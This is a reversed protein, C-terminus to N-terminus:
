VRELVFYYGPNWSQCVLYLRGGHVHWVVNHLHQVAEIGLDEKPRITSLVEHTAADLIYIPAPRGEIPDKLGGVVAYGRGEYEIYDIGCPWAGAPLKHSAFFQGDLGHVQLRANPRDAIVLHHGGHSRSIGHATSFKGNDDSGNAKGGFIQTWRQTKVDAASIYNAGYGDAVYLADGVLVTDTPNFPVDAAQYAEFEPRPLVFELDGDLSVVAVMAASNAPLFLRWKGDFVGIKTSHFNLPTLADPLKILEQQHLDPTIRMLGYGPMGYFLHGFGPRHDIAFGGHLKIEYETAEAPLSHLDERYAFTFPAQGSRKGM